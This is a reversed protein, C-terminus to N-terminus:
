ESLIMHNLYQLKAKLECLTEYNTQLNTDIIEQMVQIHKLLEHKQKEDM